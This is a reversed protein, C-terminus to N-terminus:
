KILTHRTYVKYKYPGQVLCKALYFLWNTSKEHECKAFLLDIRKTPPMKKILSTFTGQPDYVIVPVGDIIELSLFPSVSRLFSDLDKSEPLIRVMQNIMKVLEELHLLQSRFENMSGVLCTYTTSEYSGLYIELISDRIKIMRNFTDNAGHLLGLLEIPPYVLAVFEHNGCQDSDDETDSGPNSEADSVVEPTMYMGNKVSVVKRKKELPVSSPNRMCKGCAQSNPSCENGCNYCTNVSSM